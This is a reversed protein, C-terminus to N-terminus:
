SNPELAPATELVLGITSEIAEEIVEGIKVSCTKLLSNDAAKAPAKLLSNNATAETTAKLLSNDAVKASTKAQLKTQVKHSESKTMKVKMEAAICEEIAAGCRKVIIRICEAIEAETLPSALTTLKHGGVTKTEVKLDNGKSKHLIRLAKVEASSLDQLPIVRESRCSKASNPVFGIVLAAKGNENRVAPYFSFHLRAYNHQAMEEITQDTKSFEHQVRKIASKYSDEFKLDGDGRIIIQDHKLDCEVTPQAQSVTTESNGNTLSTSKM